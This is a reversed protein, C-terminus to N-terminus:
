RYLLYPARVSKFKALAEQWDYWIRSPSEGARISDLVQRSGVLGLAKDLKFTQPSLRFLAALFEVGMETPEFAQRDVLVIQVGHCVEGTFVEALPTFDVPV